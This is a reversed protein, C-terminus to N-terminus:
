SYGNYKKQDYESIDDLIRGRDMHKIELLKNRWARMEESNKDLEELEEPDPLMSSRYDYYVVDDGPIVDINYKDRAEAASIFNNSSNTM